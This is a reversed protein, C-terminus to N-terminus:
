FYIEAVINEFPVGRELLLDRVDVVMNANGCLYYKRDAQVDDSEKLHKTLRGHIVEPHEEATCFRLYREGFAAKFFDAYYFQTLYRAGQLLTPGQTQGSEAMSLFPAIGTGTAIWWADDPAKTFRGFPASIYLTDGKQLRAMQPTLLGGPKVDYLLRLFPQEKGSAISYLRLPDSTNIAAAVVQGPIFDHLREVEISFVGPTIETNSLVKTPFVEKKRRVPQSM